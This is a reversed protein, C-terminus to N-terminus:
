KAFVFKSYCDTSYKCTQRLDVAVVEEGVGVVVESGDGVATWYSSGVAAVEVGEVVVEEEVGKFM